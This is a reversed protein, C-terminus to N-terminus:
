KNLQTWHTVKDFVKQFDLCIMNVPEGKDLSRMVEEFFESEMLEQLILVKTEVIKNLVRPILEKPRPSKDVKLCKLKGLVKEETVAMVNLEAGVRKANQYVAPTKWMNYAQEKAKISDRDERLQSLQRM